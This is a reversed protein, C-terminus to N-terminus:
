LKMSPSFYNNCYEDFVEDEIQSEIKRYNKSNIDVKSLRKQVEKNMRDLVEQSFGETNNLTFM